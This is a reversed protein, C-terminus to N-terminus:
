KVDRQKRSVHCSCSSYNYGLGNRYQVSYALRLGSYSNKREEGGWEMGLCMDWPTLTLIYGNFKNENTNFSAIFIVIMMKQESRYM